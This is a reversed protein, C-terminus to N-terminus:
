IWCFCLLLLECVLFLGLLRVYYKHVNLYFRDLFKSFHWLLINCIHLLRPAQSFTCLPLDYTWKSSSPIYMGVVTITLHVSFYRILQKILKTFFFQWVNVNLVVALHCTKKGETNKCNWWRFDKERNPKLCPNLHQVLIKYTPPVSCTTVNM